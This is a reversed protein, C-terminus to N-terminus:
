KTTQTVKGPQGNLGEKQITEGPCMGAGQGTHEADSQM